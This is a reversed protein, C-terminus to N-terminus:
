DAPMDINLMQRIFWPLHSGSILFGPVGAEVACRPFTSHCLGALAVLEHQECGGRRDQELCLTQPQAPLLPRAAGVAGSSLLPHPRLQMGQRAPFAAAHVPGAWPGM